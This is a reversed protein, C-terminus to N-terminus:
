PLNKIRCGSTCTASCIDRMVRSHKNTSYCYGRANFAACVYDSGMKNRCREQCKGCTNSCLYLVNYENCRHVNLACITQKVLDNCGECVGCFRPCKNMLPTEFCDGSEDLCSASPDNCAGTCGCTRSCQFYYYPQMCLVNDAKCDRRKDACTNDFGGLAGIFICSLIILRSVQIM